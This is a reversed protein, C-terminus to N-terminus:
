EDGISEKMRDLITDPPTASQSGIDRLFARSKLWPSFFNIRAFSLKGYIDFSPVIARCHLLRHLTQVAQGM